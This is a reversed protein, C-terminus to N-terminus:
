QELSPSCCSAAWITSSIRVASPRALSLGVFVGFRCISCALLCNCARFRRALPWALLGLLCARGLLWARSHALFACVKRKLTYGADLIIPPLVVFFILNPSFELISKESDSTLNLFGGCIFGFIMSGASEPLFHLKYRKIVGGILLCCLILSM